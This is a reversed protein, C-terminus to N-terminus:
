GEQWRVPIRDWRVLIVMSLRMSEPLFLGAHSSRQYIRLFCDMAFAGTRCAFVHCGEPSRCSITGLATERVSMRFSIYPTEMPIEKSFMCLLQRAPPGLGHEM